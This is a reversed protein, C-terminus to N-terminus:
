ASTGPRSGPPVTRAVLDNAFSQFSRAYRGAVLNWYGRVYPKSFFHVMNQQWEEWDDTDILGYKTHHRHIEEYLTIGMDCLHHLKSRHEPLEPGNFSTDLQEYELHHDIIFKNFSDFRSYIQSDMSALINKQM